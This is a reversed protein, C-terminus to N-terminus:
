QADTLAHDALVTDLDNWQQLATRSYQGLSVMDPCPAARAYQLDLHFGDDIPGTDLRSSAQFEQVIQNNHAIHRHVTDPLRRIALHASCLVGPYMFFHDRVEIHRM